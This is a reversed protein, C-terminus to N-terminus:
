PSKHLNNAQKPTLFLILEFLLVQGLQYVSRTSKNLM